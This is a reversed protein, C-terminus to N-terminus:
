PQGSGNSAVTMKPDIRTGGMFARVKYQLSDTAFDGQMPDVVGGGVRLSDSSKMFLEPAEHGRLFGMALAPRNESPSAFLFWSTAGNANTAVQPIYPEVNLRVAGRLWNAVIAKTEGAGGDRAGPASTVELQVANLANMATVRLQPPVVLEVMQIDIPEGESDVALNALVTFADQLAPISFPPNNAAAGNAQNIINGNAANYLLAHPGNADTYLTTAFHSETRRVARALRDPIDRFADLDDNVLQEFSLGVRQGYKFVRYQYRAESVVAEQYENGEPVMPLRGEAGDVVFRSVTRFDRVTEIRVFNRYVPTIERYRGLLQRDLIDGFLLPFDSTGMAEQFQWFPRAGTYIEGTFKAAEVLAAMYKPTRRLNRVAPGEGVTLKRYIDDSSQGAEMQISDLVELFEAM